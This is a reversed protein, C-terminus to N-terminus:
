KILQALCFVKQFIQTSELTGMKIHISNQISLLFKKKLPQNITHCKIHRTIKIRM